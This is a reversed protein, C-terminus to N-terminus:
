VKLVNVKIIAIAVDDTSASSEDLQSYFIKLTDTAALTLTKSGSANIWQSSSTESSSTDPSLDGLAKDADTQNVAVTFLSVREVNTDTMFVISLDIRYKGSENVTITDSAFSINGRTDISSLGIVKTWTGEAKASYAISLATPFANSGTSPPATFGISMLPNANFNVSYTFDSIGTNGDAELWRGPRGSSLPTTVNFTIRGAQEGGNAIVSSECGIFGYGVLATNSATYGSFSFRGITQDVASSITTETGIDGGSLSNRARLTNRVLLSPVIGTFKIYEVLSGQSYANFAVEQSFFADTVNSNTIRMANTLKIVDTDSLSRSSIQFAAQNITGTVNSYFQFDPTATSDQQIRINGGYVNLDRIANISRTGGDLELYKIPLGNELVWRTWLGSDILAPASFNLRQSVSESSYARFAPTIDDNLAYNYQTSIFQNNVAPNTFNTYQYRTEGVTLYQIGSGLSVDITPNNEYANQLTIDSNYACVQYNPAAPTGINIVTRKM